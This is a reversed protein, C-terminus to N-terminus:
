DQCYPVLPGNVKFLFMLEFAFRWIEGTTAGANQKQFRRWAENWQGGDPGGSDLGLRQSAEAFRETRVILTSFRLDHRKV